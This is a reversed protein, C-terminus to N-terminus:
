TVVSARAPSSMMSMRLGVWGRLTRLQVSVKEEAWLRHISM